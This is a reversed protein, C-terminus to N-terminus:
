AESEDAYRGPSKGVLRKFVKGFHAQDKFGVRHAIEGVSHRATELLRRAHAIRVRFLYERWTCGLHQRFLSGLYDATVNFHGSVRRLSLDEEFSQRLYVMARSLLPPLHHDVEWIAGAASLRETGTPFGWAEVLRSAVKAVTRLQQRRQELEGIDVQPTQELRNLFPEQPLNKRRCYNLLRQRAQPLADRNIVSGFFFAGMVQGRVTLPEVIDTIGAHCIGAFGTKRIRLLRLVANKNRVCHLLTAPTSKAHACHACNHLQYDVPLRLDPISQALGALDAFSVRWGGGSELWRFLEQLLSPEAPAHRAELARLVKERPAIWLPELSPTDIPCCRTFDQM